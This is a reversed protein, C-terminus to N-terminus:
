SPGVEGSGHMPKNVDRQTWILAREPVDVAGMTLFRPIFDGFDDVLHRLSNEDLSADAFRDAFHEMRDFDESSMQRGDCAYAEWANYLM